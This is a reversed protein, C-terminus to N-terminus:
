RRRRNRVLSPKWVRACFSTWIMRRRRCHRRQGGASEPVGEETKLGRDDGGLSVLMAVVLASKRCGRETQVMSWNAMLRWRFGSGGYGSNRGGGRVMVSGRNQAEEELVTLVRKLM